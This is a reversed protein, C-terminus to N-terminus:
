KQNFIDGVQTQKEKHKNEVQQFGDTSVNSSVVDHIPVSPSGIIMNTSVPISVMATENLGTQLINNSSSTM